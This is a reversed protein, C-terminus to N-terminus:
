KGLLTLLGQKTSITLLTKAFVKNNTLIEIKRLDNSKSGAKIILRSRLDVGGLKEHYPETKSIEFNLSEINYKKMFQDLKDDPMKKLKIILSNAHKELDLRIAEGIDNTIDNSKKDLDKKLDSFLKDFQKQNDAM